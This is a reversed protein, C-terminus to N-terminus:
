TFKRRWKIRKKSVLIRNVDLDYINFLKKKKYFTSKSIKKNDFNISKGSIRISPQFFFHLFNKITIQPIM